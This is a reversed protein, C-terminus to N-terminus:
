VRQEDLYFINETTLSTVCTESKGVNIIKSMKHVDKENLLYKIIFLWMLDHFVAM